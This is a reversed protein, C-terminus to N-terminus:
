ESNMRNVSRFHKDCVKQLLPELKARQGANLGVREDMESLILRANGGATRSALGEKATKWRQKEEDSLAKEVSKNWDPITSPAYEGALETGPEMRGKM